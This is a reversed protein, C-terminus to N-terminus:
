WTAEFGSLKLTLDRTMLEELLQFSERGESGLQVFFHFCTGQSRATWRDPSPTHLGLFLGSSAEEYKTGKCHGGVSALPGSYYSAM